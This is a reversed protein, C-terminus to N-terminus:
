GHSNISEARSLAPSRHSFLRLSTVSHRLTVQGRVRKCSQSRGNGSKQKTKNKYVVWSRAIDVRWKLGDSQGQGRGCERVLQNEARM